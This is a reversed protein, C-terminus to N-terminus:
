LYAGSVADRERTGDPEIERNCAPCKDNCSCDHLDIWAEGCPCEFHREFYVGYEPPWIPDFGDPNRIGALWEPAESPLRLDREAM